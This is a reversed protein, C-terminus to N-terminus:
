PAAGPPALRHIIVIPGSEDRRCRVPVVEIGHSWGMAELGEWLRTSDPRRPDAIWARGRPGVLRPLMALLADVNRAEYLVDAAIVLDFPARDTVAPPPDRWDAVATELTLGAGRANARAFALAEEYWDTAVVDAGRARAVIAPLGLGCGLELVQLGGLDETALAEALARGSPWLEAWYPLREDHEYEEEDILDEASVPRQITLEVAGAAVQERVLDFGALVAADAADAPDGGGGRFRAIRAPPV